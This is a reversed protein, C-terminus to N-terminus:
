IGTLLVPPPSPDRAHLHAKIVRRAADGGLELFAQFIM